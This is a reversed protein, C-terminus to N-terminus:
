QNEISKCMNYKLNEKLNNPNFKEFPVVLKAYTHFIVGNLILNVLISDGEVKGDTNGFYWPGEPDGYISYMVKIM